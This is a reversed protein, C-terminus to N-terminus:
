GAAACRLFTRPPQKPRANYEQGNPTSRNEILLNRRLRAKSATEGEQAQACFLAGSSVETEGSPPATPDLKSATMRPLRIPSPAVIQDGCAPTVARANAGSGPSFSLSGCN